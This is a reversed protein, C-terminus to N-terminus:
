KGTITESFGTVALSSMLLNLAWVSRNLAANSSMASSTSFAVRPFLRSVTTLPCSVHTRPASSGVSISQAPPVTLFDLLIQYKVITSSTRITLRLIFSQGHRLATCSSPSRDVHIISLLLAALGEEFSQCRRIRTCETGMSCAWTQYDDRGGDSGDQLQDSYQYGGWWSSWALQM